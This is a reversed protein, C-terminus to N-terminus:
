QVLLEKLAIVTDRVKAAEEFKLERSLAQMQKELRAIEKVLLIPLHLINEVGGALAKSVGIQAM